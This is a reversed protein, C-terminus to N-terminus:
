EDVSKCLVGDLIYTGGPMKSPLGKPKAWDKNFDTKNLGFGFVNTDHEQAFVTTMFGHFFKKLEIHMNKKGGKKKRNKVGIFIDLAEKYKNDLQFTGRSKVLKKDTLQNLALIAAVHVSHVFDREPLNLKGALKKLGCSEENSHKLFARIQENLKEELTSLSTSIFMDIMGVRASPLLIHMQNKIKENTTEDNDRASLLENFSSLWMLDQSRQTADRDLVGYCLNRYNYYFPVKKWSLRMLESALIWLRQSEREPLFINLKKQKKKQCFQGLLESAFDDSISRRSPTDSSSKGDAEFDRKEEHPGKM